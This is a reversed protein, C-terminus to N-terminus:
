SDATFTATLQGNVFKYDGLVSGNGYDAGNIYGYLYYNFPNYDEDAKGCITCAGNSFNHSVSAGCTICVGQTNHSAHICTTSDVVYSLVLNGNWSESLTFTM